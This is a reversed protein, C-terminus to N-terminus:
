NDEDTERGVGHHWKSCTFEPAYMASIAYGHERHFIFPVLKTDQMILRDRHGMENNWQMPSVSNFDVEIVVMQKTNNKRTSGM